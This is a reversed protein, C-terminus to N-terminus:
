GIEEDFKSGPAEFICIKAQMLSEMESDQFHLRVWKYGHSSQLKPCNLAHRVTKLQIL